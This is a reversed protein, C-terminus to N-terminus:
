EEIGWYALVLAKHRDIFDFFGSVPQSPIQAKTHERYADMLDRMAQHKRAEDIKDFEIGDSTKFRIITTITMM